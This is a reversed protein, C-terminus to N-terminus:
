SSTAPKLTPRYFFATIPREVFTFSLYGVLLVAPISFLDVLLIAFRRHAFFRAATRGFFEIVIIHSLYVSYSWDGVGELFRGFRLQASRELELLGYLFLFASIGYIAPRLWISTEIWLQDPYHAVSWVIATALWLASAALMALGASPHLRTRLYVRYLLYGALFELVSTSFVVQLIQQAPHSFVGCTVAIGAWLVFGAVAFRNPLVALLLFAGIYFYLEFSLTWSQMILPQTTPLLLFSRLINAQHGSGANIWAPNYLFAALVIAAYCWYIPYIRALRHYLFTGASRLNGFKGTTVVAIVVGSIIFFLDVGMVGFQFLSMFATKFYKVEVNRLHALVVAIAAVGRCVQISVIRKSKARVPRHPTAPM